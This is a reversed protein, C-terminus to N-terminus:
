LLRAPRFPLTPYRGRCAAVPGVSLDSRWCLVRNQSLCNRNLCATFFLGSATLCAVEIPWGVQADYRMSSSCECPTVVKRVIAGGLFSFAFTAREGM